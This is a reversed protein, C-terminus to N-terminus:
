VFDIYFSNSLSLFFYASCNLEHHYTINMGHTKGHTYIEYIMFSKWGFVHSLSNALTINKLCLMIDTSAVACSVHLLSVLM